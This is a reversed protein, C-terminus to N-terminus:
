PRGMMRRGNLAEQSFAADAFVLDDPAVVTVDSGTGGPGSHHRVREVWMPGIVGHEDDRVQVVVDCAIVGREMPNSLLPLTHRHHIPYVFSRNAMREQACTKRALYEAQANNKVNEDKIVRTKKIGCAAVDEDHWRGIVPKRGDKGTGARGHVVYDSHRGTMVYKIAPSGTIVENDSVQAGRTNAIAFLPAQAASPASLIFINPNKGEPDVGARLFIGARDFDKKTAALWSSGADWKIPKESKFGTVRTIEEVGADVIREPVVAWTPGSNKDVGIIKLEPEIIEYQQIKLKSLVPTGVVAARQATPDAILQYDTIGAGKIAEIALQEFTINNFSRDHEIQDDVLQAMCDRGTIAIETAGQSFQEFGDTYGMFQTVGNIQLAFLSNPPVRKMLELTTINSGVTMSFQSPTTLFAISVDYNKAVLLERGNVLLEVRDIM